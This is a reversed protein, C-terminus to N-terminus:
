FAQLYRNSLYSRSNPLLSQYPLLQFYEKYPLFSLARGPSSGPVERVRLSFWVELGVFWRYIICNHKLLCEKMCSTSLFIYCSLLRNCNRNFYKWQIEIYITFTVFSDPCCSYNTRACVLSIQFNQNRMLLCVCNGKIIIYFDSDHFAPDRLKLVFSQYHIPLQVASGFLICYIYWLKYNVISLSDDHLRCQGIPTCKNYKVFLEFSKENELQLPVM